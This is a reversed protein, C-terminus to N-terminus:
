VYNIIKLTLNRYGVGVVYLYFYIASVAVATLGIIRILSETKM